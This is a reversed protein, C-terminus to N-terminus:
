VPVADVVRAPQPGRPISATTRPDTGAGGNAGDSTDQLMRALLIAVTPESRVRASAGRDPM